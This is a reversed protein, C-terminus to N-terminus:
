ICSAMYVPLYVLDNEVHLQGNYVLYRVPIRIDYKEKFYDFSKHSKYTSSKVEIPVIRRNSRTLFDVEYLKEKNTNEPRYRFQHFYLPHGSAVLQQAVVNEYIMGLDSSLKGLVLDKYILDSDSKKQKSALVQSVFLGIDCLYLKFNTHDAFLELSVDPQTVNYCPLGIYADAIVSLSEIYQSFRANKDIKSLLFHSQHHSLQEPITRLLASPRDGKKHLDTAYMKLIDQKLMDMAEFSEGNIYAAVVQPMGGVALYVRFRKMIQQHAALPLPNKTQFSNRILEFTTFDNSAWLFEEFDMPYMSIRHEESPILIDKVNEQISILSGTEIYDYRGDAVLQKISQRAKPCRQVEDFIILCRKDSLTKQTYLFLLQFFENIRNISEDFLNIVEKPATSFDILLYDDYFRKAFEIVATTKGVRRAGEILLASRGNSQDFWNKMETIIKREFLITNTAITM